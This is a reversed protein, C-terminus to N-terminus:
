SSPFDSKPIFTFSSLYGSVESCDVLFRSSSGAISQRARGPQGGRGGPKRQCCSSEWEPVGTGGATGVAGGGGPLGRCVPSLRLPVQDPLFDTTVQQWLGICMPVHQCLFALFAQPPNKRYFYEQGEQRNKAFINGVSAKASSQRYTAIRKQCYARRLAAPSAEPKEGQKVTLSRSFSVPPSTVNAASCSRPSVPETCSSTGQRSMPPWGHWM